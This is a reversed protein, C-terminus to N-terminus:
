SALWEQPTRAGKSSNCPRCALALNSIDDPGGRSRPIVHDLTMDDNSAGCYRCGEGDRQVVASRFRRYKGRSREGVMDLVRQTITPHYLRGDSALWWGRLLTRKHQEFMEREIGLRAIILEDDAPMSGCPVQQWAIAWLMLLWPRISPHALAWTDSQMVQELDLEFRWGKAKTERPYPPTPATNETSM